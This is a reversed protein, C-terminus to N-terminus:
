SSYLQSGGTGTYSLIEQPHATAFTLHRDLGERLATFNGAHFHGHTFRQRLWKWIKETPNLWPSYTPLWLVRLRPDADIAKWARPNYHVPWNDMVLFVQTFSAFAQGIMTYFRALASATFHSRLCHTMRGAVPDFAVAARVQSNSRCSLSVRPQRRGAEGYMRAVTPQRYFGAEDEM